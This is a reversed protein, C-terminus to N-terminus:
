ISIRIFNAEMVRRAAAEKANTAQLWFLVVATSCDVKWHM